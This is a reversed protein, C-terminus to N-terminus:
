DWTWQGCGLANLCWYYDGDQRVFLMSEYGAQLLIRFVNAFALFQECIQVQSNIILVIDCFFINILVSSTM